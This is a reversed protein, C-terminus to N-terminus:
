QCHTKSMDTHILWRGFVTRSQRSRRTIQDVTMDFLSIVALRLSDLFDYVTMPFIADPSTQRTSSDIGVIASLRQTPIPAVEAGIGGITTRCNESHIDDLNTRRQIARFQDGTHDDLRISDIM